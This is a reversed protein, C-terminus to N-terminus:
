TPVNFWTGEQFLPLLFLLALVLIIVIKTTRETLTKSIKSESFLEQEDEEMQRADEEIKSEAALSSLDRNRAQEDEDDDGQSLVVKKNENDISQRMSEREKNDINKVEKDFSDDRPPVIMM